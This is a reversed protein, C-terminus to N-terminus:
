IEKPHHENPDDTVNKTITALKCMSVAKWPHFIDQKNVFRTSIFMMKYIDASSATLIKNTTGHALSENTLTHFIGNATNQLTGMPLM